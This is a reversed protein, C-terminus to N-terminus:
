AYNVSKLISGRPPGANQEQVSVTMAVPAQLANYTLGGDTSLMLDVRANFSETLQPYGGTGVAFPNLGQNFGEVRVDKVVLGSAFGLPAQTSSLYADVPPPLLPSPEPLPPIATLDPRMEMHGSASSPSWTKGGDLSLETFVDFFSSIMFRGSSSPAVTTQGTSPQSPSTRIQLGSPLDGESINLRLMETDYIQIGGSTSVAQLNVTVQAPATIRSFSAGNDMSLDFDLLSDFTHTASTGLPPPPSNETFARHTVNSIIIGNAYLAHWQAPSIYKSNPPPLTNGTFFNTRSQAQAQNVLFSSALGWVLAGFIRNVTM